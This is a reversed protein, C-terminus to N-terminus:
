GWAVPIVTLRQEAKTERLGNRVRRASPAQSLRVQVSEEEMTCQSRGRGQPSAWTGVACSSHGRSQGQNVAADPTRSGRSPM